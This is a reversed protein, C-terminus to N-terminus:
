NSKVPEEYNKNINYVDEDSNIPFNNNIENSDSYNPYCKKVKKKIFIILVVLIIVGSIIGGILLGLIVKGSFLSNEVQIYDFKEKETIYDMILYKTENVKKFEYYYYNKEGGFYSISGHMTQNKINELKIEELNKPYIDSFTYNIFDNIYKGNKVIYTIYIDDNIEFESLELIILGKDDKIEETCEHKKLYYINCFFYKILLLFLIIKM